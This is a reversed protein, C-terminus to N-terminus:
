QNKMNESYKEAFYSIEPCSYTLVVVCMVTGILAMYMTFYQQECPFLYIARCHATLFPQNCRSGQLNAFFVHTGNYENVKAPLLSGTVFCSNFKMHILIQIM